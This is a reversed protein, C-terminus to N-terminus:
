RKFFHYYYLGSLATLLSIWWIANLSYFGQLIKISAVVSCAIAVPISYNFFLVSIPIRCLRFAVMLYVLYAGINSLSFLMVTHLLDGTEAGILVGATRFVFIVVQMLMGLSQREVISFINSVPSTTFSVFLWLSLWSAFEGSVRWESGFVIGFLDPASVVLIVTPPMIIHVLKQHVKSVLAGLKGKRHAVAANSFFVSSVAQGMVAMPMALVRHALAYLGAAGSSFIAAIMLPPLQQGATNFFGGLTSFIPFQRYRAAAQRVDKATVRSFQRMRLVPLALSLSGAGQGTAQGILLAIGGFQFGLIQIGLTTVSQRIKTRAIAPFAKTRLAWYNFVQYTGVLLVGAPLLWFYTTLKSVNLAIAISEGAFFVGLASLGTVALVVLLCLVVVSAATQDDEPLPIALEYRVSAIVTFLSLLAAYVALLGFDDVTYLRTLLPAALVMLVQAGATGGMLVSVGKAFASQPLLRSVVRPFKLSIM